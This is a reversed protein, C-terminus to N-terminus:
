EIRFDWVQPSAKGDTYQVVAYEGPSLDKVPWLKFLGEAFQRRFIEVQDQEELLEKTVPVITVKEVVRGGKKSVGMRVIAMRDEASQRLYFEPRRDKLVNPSKEGDVEITAKGNVIPIPSMAKLISRKKDTVLKVDVQPITRLKEGEVAYVGPDVPVRSIEKAIAREAEDEADQTVADALRTAETTKRESDTKKLDVLALPIEEWDTREASYYKVRDGEVKYETVAHYGGDKLYLKFSAAFLTATALFLIVLRM